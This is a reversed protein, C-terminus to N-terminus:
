EMVMADDSKAESAARRLLLVFTIACLIMMLKFDDIHSIISAQTQVVQHLAARGPATWPSWSDRRSNNSPGSAEM